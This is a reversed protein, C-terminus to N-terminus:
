QSQLLLYFVGCGVIAALNNGKEKRQQYRNLITVEIQEDLYLQIRNQLVAAVERPDRDEQCYVAMEEELIYFIDEMQRDMSRSQLIAQLFQEVEQPNYARFGPAEEDEALAKAQMTLALQLAQTNAPLISGSEEAMEVQRAPDLLYELFARAGEKCAAAQNIAFGSGMVYSGNGNETPYGIFVCDGCLVNLYYYYDELSIGIYPVSILIDNEAFAKNLNVPYPSDSSDAMERAFKLIEVFEETEFHCIKNKWDIFAPNEEDSIAYYLVQAASANWFLVDTGRSRATDLMEKWTWRTRGDAIEGTTFATCFQVGYLAIYYHENIRSYEMAQSLINEQDPLWDDLPELYGRRAYADLDLLFSDMLDPGNGASIDIQLRERAELGSEQSFDQVVIEYADNERNFSTVVKQLMPSLTHVALTVKQKEAAQGDQWKSVHLLVRRHDSSIEAALLLQEESVVSLMPADSISFGYSSWNLLKIQEEGERRYVGSTDATYSSDSVEQAPLADTEMWSGERRVALHTNELKNGEEMYYYTVYIEGAETLRKETIAKGEKGPLSLLDIREMKWTDYPPALVQLYLSLQNDTEMASVLRYLTDGALRYDEEQLFAVSDDFCEDPDPIRQEFVTYALEESQEAAEERSCGSLILLACMWLLFLFLKKM